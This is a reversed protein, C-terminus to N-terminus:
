KDFALLFNGLTFPGAATKSDHPEASNVSNITEDALITFGFNHSQWGLATSSVYLISIRMCSVKAISM